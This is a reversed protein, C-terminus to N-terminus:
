YLFKYCLLSGMYLLYLSLAESLRKRSLLDVIYGLGIHFCHYEGILVDKTGLDCSDFVM